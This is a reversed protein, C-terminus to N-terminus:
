STPDRPLPTALTAPLRVKSILCKEFKMLTERTNQHVFIRMFKTFIICWLYISENFFIEQDQHRRKLSLHADSLCIYGFHSLLFQLSAEYNHNRCSLASYAAFRGM